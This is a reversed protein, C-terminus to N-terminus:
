GLILKPNTKEGKIRARKEKERSERRQPLSGGQGVSDGTVTEQKMSGVKELNFNM